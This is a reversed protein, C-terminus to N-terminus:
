GAQNRSRDSSPVRLRGTLSGMIAFTARDIEFGDDIARAVKLSPSIATTLDWDPQHHGYVQLSLGNFEASPPDALTRLEVLQNQARVVVSGSEDDDDAARLWTARCSFSGGAIRNAIYPVAWAGFGGQIDVSCFGHAAAEARAFDAVRAASTLLSSGHAVIDARPGERRVLRPKQWGNAPKHKDAQRLLSFGKGVVCETWVFCEAADDAQGFVFGLGRIAETASRVLEGYSVHIQKGAM